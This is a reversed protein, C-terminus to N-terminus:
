YESRRRPTSLLSLWHQPMAARAAYHTRSRREEEQAHSANIQQRVVAVTAAAGLLALVGTVLTQWDYLLTGWRRLDSDLGVALLAAFISAAISAGGVIGLWFWFTSDAQTDTRM